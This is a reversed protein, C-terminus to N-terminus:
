LLVEAAAMLRMDADDAVLILTHVDKEDHIVQIGGGLLIEM